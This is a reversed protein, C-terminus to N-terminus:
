PCVLQETFSSLHVEELFTFNSLILFPVARSFYFQHSILKEESPDYIGQVAHDLTDIGPGGSEGNIANHDPYYPAM